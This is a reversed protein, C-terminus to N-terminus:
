QRDCHRLRLQLRQRDLDGHLRQRLSDGQLRGNGDALYLSGASDVALNVASRGTIAVTQTAVGNVFTDKYIKQQNLDPIYVSGTSDVAIGFSTSNTAYTSQVYSIHAQARAGTIGILACPLTLCVTISQLTRLCAPITKM